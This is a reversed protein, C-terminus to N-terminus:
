QLNEIKVNRRKKREKPFQSTLYDSFVYVNRISSLKVEAKIFQGGSGAGIGMPFAMPIALKLVETRPYVYVCTYYMDYIDVDVVLVDCRLCVYTSSVCLYGSVYGFVYGCASNGERASAIPAPSAWPCFPNGTSIAQGDNYCRVDYEGDVRGDWQGEVRIENADKRFLYFKHTNITTHHNIVIAWM